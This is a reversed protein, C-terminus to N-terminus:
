VSIFIIYRCPYMCAYLVYVCAWRDPNQQYLTEYFIREAVGPTPTAYKQGPKTLLLTQTGLFDDMFHLPLIWNTHWAYWIWGFVCSTPVLWFIVYRGKGGEFGAEERRYRGDNETKSLGSTVQWRRYSIYLVLHPIYLGLFVSFMQWENWYKYAMVCLIWLVHSNRWHHRKDIINTNNICICICTCSSSTVVSNTICFYVPLLISDM